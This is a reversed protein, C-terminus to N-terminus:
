GLDLLISESNEANGVEGARVCDLRVWRVHTETGGGERTKM